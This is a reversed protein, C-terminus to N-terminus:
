VPWDSFEGLWREVDVSLSSYPVGGGLESRILRSCGTGHIGLIAFSADLVADRATAHM